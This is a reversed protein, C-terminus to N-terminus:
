GIAFFSRSGPELEQAQILLLQSFHLQLLTHNFGTTSIIDISINKMNRLSRKPPRCTQPLQSLSPSIFGHLVKKNDLLTKYYVQCFSFYPNFRM